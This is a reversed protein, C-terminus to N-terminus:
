RCLQRIYGAALRETTRRAPMTALREYLTGGNAYELVLYCFHEDHFYAFCRLINPHDLRVHTEVERQFQRVVGEELLAAKKVQKVVLVRRSRTERVKFVEGALFLPPPPPTPPM